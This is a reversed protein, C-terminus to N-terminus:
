TGPGLLPSPPTGASHLASHSQCGPSGGAQMCGRPVAQRGPLLPPSHNLAGTPSPASAPLHRHSHPHVQPHPHLLSVGREPGTGWCGHEDAPGASTFHPHGPGTDASASRGSSAPRRSGTRQAAPRAAISGRRCAPHSRGLCAQCWPQM